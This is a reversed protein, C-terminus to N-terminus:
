LRVIQCGDFRSWVCSFILCVVRGEVINLGPICVCENPKFHCFICMNELGHYGYVYCVGVFFESCLCGVYFSM